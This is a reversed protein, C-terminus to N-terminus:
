LRGLFPFTAVSLHKARLLMYPIDFRSVNYGIVVDPDIRLLFERWGLLLSSEDKYEHLEAGPIASCTGFTFVACRSPEREG